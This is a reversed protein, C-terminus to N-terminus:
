ESALSEEEKTVNVGKRIQLSVDRGGSVRKEM